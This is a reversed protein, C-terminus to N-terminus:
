HYQVKLYSTVVSIVQVTSFWDNLLQTNAFFEQMLEGNGITMAKKGVTCSSTRLTYESRIHEEICHEEICNHM